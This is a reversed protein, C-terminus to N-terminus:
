RALVNIILNLSILNEGEKKNEKSEKRFDVSEIEILYPAKELSELFAALSPFKGQTKLSFRLSEPLNQKLSSPLAAIELNLQFRKASEEVFNLFNVPEDQKVFFNELTKTQFAVKEQEQFAKFYSVKKELLSKKMKLESIKSFSERIEKIAPLIGVLLFVLSIGLFSFSITLIKQRFNM